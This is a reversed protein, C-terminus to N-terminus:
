IMLLIKFRQIMILDKNDNEEEKNSLSSVNENETTM